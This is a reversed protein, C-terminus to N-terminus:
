GVHVWSLEHLACLLVTTVSHISAWKSLSHHFNHLGVQKKDRAHQARLEEEQELEGAVLDLVGQLWRATNVNLAQLSADYFHLNNPQAWIATCSHGTCCFSTAVCCTFFFCSTSTSARCLNCTIFIHQEFNVPCRVTGVDNSARNHCKQTTPSPHCFFFDPLM